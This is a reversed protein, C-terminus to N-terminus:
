CVLNERSQLESTHEESRPVPHVDRYTVGRGGAGWFVSVQGSFGLISGWVLPIDLLECADSALYRPPFNDTGDLVLDRGGLQELANAPTVLEALVDVHIGQNLDRLGQATVEAKGRGVDEATFLVQRHLNTEDVTDPDLVTLRGVGAAALYSLVPAGLGGAGLVAVRAACLRRQGTEGLEPLRMQRMYQASAEWEEGPLPAVARDLLDQAATAAYASGDPICGREVM